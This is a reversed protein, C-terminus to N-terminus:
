LPVCDYIAQKEGSQDHSSRYRGKKGYQGCLENARADLDRGPGAQLMVGDSSQALTKIEGACATLGIVILMMSVMLFFLRMSVERFHAVQFGAANLSEDPSIAAM